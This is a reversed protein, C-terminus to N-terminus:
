VFSSFMLSDPPMFAWCAGRRPYSSVVETQWQRRARRRRYSGRPRNRLCPGVPGDLWWGTVMSSIITSALDAMAPGRVGKEDAIHRLARVFDALPIGHEVGAKILSAPHSATLHSAPAAHGALDPGHDIGAYQHHTMQTQGRLAGRREAAIANLTLSALTEVVGHLVGEFQLLGADEGDQELGHRLFGRRLDRALQVYGDVTNAGTSLDVALQDDHVIEHTEVLREARTRSISCGLTARWNV